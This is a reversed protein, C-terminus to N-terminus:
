RNGDKMSERQDLTEALAIQIWSSRPVGIRTCYADIRELLERSLTVQIRARTTKDKM